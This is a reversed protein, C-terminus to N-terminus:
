CPTEGEGATARRPGANLAQLGTNVSAADIGGFVGHQLMCGSLLALLATAVDQPATGSAIDGRAQYCAALESLHVHLTVRTERVRRALRESRLSEAWVQVAVSLLAIRSDAQQLEEIIRPLLNALPPPDPLSAARRFTDVVLAINDEAIADILDEKSKFYRYVGGASMGSEDLIDQMSTAHFGDRVICRRAADVIERRRAELHQASVKAM